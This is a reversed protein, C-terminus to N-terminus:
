YTSVVGPQGIMYNWCGTGVPAWPIISYYVGTRCVNGVLMGNIFMSDAYAPITAAALAIAAILKKM